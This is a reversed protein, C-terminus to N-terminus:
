LKRAAEALRTQVPESFWCEMFFANKAEADKQYRLRIEEVRNEKSAMMAPRNFGALEAMREIAREEVSEPPCLESVLGFQFGQSLSYFDGRFLMETAARDGVVQRLMMDTLYPVPVGLRMENLGIKKGDSTGFRFDTTLALVCGGAVAHGCIASATPLPFTYLELTMRFFEEWFASMEERDLSMLEPLALGASFFKQGGALVMGGCGGRIEELAAMVERPVSRGITNTVGNDLRLLAIDGHSEVSIKSM